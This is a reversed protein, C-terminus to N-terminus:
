RIKSIKKHPAIFNILFYLVSKDIHNKFTTTANYDHDNADPYDFDTTNHILDKLLIQQFFVTKSNMKKFSIFKKSNLISLKVLIVSNVKNSKLIM